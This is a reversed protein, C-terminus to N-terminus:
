IKQLKKTVKKYCCWERVFLIFYKIKLPNSVFTFSYFDNTRETLVFLMNEPTIFILNKRAIKV